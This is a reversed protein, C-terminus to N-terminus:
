LNFDFGRLTQMFTQPAPGELNKKKIFDISKQPIDTWPQITANTLNPRTYFSKASIMKINFKSQIEEITSTPLSVKKITEESNADREAMNLGERDLPM